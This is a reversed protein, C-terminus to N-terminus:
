EKLMEAIVLRMSQTSPVIGNEFETQQWVEPRLGIVNATCKVVGGVNNENIVKALSDDIDPLPVFGTVSLQRLTDRMRLNDEVKEGKWKLCRLVDDSLNSDLFWFKQKELYLRSLAEKMNYIHGGYVDILAVALNPEVGWKTTLLDYMDQPPVEGAYIYGNFNALNFNQEPHRLRYPFVHESSVLIM